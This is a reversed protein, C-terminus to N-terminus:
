GWSPCIYNDNLSFDGVVIWYASSYLKPLIVTIDNNNSRPVSGEEAIRRMAEDTAGEFSVIGRDTYM